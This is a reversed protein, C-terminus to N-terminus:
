LITKEVDEESVLDIVLFSRDRNVSWNLQVTEETIAECKVTLLTSTYVDTYM